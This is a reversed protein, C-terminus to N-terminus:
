LIDVIAQIDDLTKIWYLKDDMGPRLDPWYVDHTLTVTGCARGLTVIQSLVEKQISGWNQVGSGIGTGLSLKYGKASLKADHFIPIVVTKDQAALGALDAFIQANETASVSMTIVGRYHPHNRGRTPGHSVGAMGGGGILTGIKDYTDYNGINAGWTYYTDKDWVTWVSPPDSVPPDLWWNDPLKRIEAFSLTGAATQQPNQM